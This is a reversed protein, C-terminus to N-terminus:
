DSNLVQSKGHKVICAMNEANNKVRILLDTKPVNLGINLMGVKLDLTQPTPKRVQQSM